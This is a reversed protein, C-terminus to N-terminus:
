RRRPVTSRPVATPPTPSRSRAATTTTRSPSRSARSRAWHPEPRTASRCSSRRTPSSRTTPPRPSPSTGRVHRRRRGVHPHGHRRHQLRRRADGVRRHGRLRGDGRRRHRRDAPGDPEGDDPLCRSGRGDRDGRHLRDFRPRGRRGQDADGRRRGRGARGRGTGRDTHTSAGACSGQLEGHRKRGHNGGARGTDPGGRVHSGAGRVAQRGGM